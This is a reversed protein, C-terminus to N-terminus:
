LSTVSLFDLHAFVSHFFTEIIIDLKGYSDVSANSQTGCLRCTTRLGGLVVFMLRIYGVTRWFSNDCDSIVELDTEMISIGGHDDYNPKIELVKIEYVKSNYTIQIIDGQTLTAFNRFSNELRPTVHVNINIDVICCRM